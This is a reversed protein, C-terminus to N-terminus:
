VGPMSTDASLGSSASSSSSPSAGSFRRAVTLCGAVASGIVWGGVQEFSSGANRTSETGHGLVLLDRVSDTRHLSQLDGPFNLIKSLGCWRM